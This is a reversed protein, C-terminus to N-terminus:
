QIIMGGPAIFLRDSQALAAQVFKGDFGTGTFEQVCQDFGQAGAGRM